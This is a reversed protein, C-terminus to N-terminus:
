CGDTSKREINGSSQKKQKRQEKMQQHAVMTTKIGSYLGSAMLGYICGGLLVGTLDARDHDALFGIIMGVAIALLPVYHDKIWGTLKIAQVIGIVIPVVVLSSANILDIDLNM